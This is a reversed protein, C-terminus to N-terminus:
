VRRKRIKDNVLRSKVICIHPGGPLCPPRSERYLKKVKKKAIKKLVNVGRREVRKVGDRESTTKSRETECESM